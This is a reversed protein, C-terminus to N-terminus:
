AYLSREVDVARWARQSGDRDTWHAHLPDNNLSVSRTQLWHCYDEYRERNATNDVVYGDRLLFGMEPFREAIQSDIVGCKNPAIFACLKSSFAVQLQPLKNLEHIANAYRDNQMHRIASRICDVVFAIGLDLVGRMRQTRGRVTRDKGAYALQVKGHARPRIDRGDAGSAHGWFLTGLYGLIVENDIASNLRRNLETDLEFMSLFNVETWAPAGGDITVAPYTYFNRRQLLSANDIKPFPM